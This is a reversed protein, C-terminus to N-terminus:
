PSVINIAPFSIFVEYERIIKEAMAEPDCCKSYDEHYEILSKIKELHIFYKDIPGAICRSHLDIFKLLGERKLRSKINNYLVSEMLIIPGDWGKQDALKQHAIIVGGETRALFFYGAFTHEDDTDATPDLTWFRLPESSEDEKRKMVDYAEKFFNERGDDDDWNDEYGNPLYGCINFDDMTADVVDLGYIKRILDRWFNKDYFTRYIRKTVLLLDVVSSEYGVFSCIHLFLERPLSEFM